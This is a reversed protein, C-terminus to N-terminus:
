RDNKKRWKLFFLPCLLCLNGVLQIIMDGILLTVADFSVSGLQPHNDVLM